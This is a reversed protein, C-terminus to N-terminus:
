RASVSSRDSPAALHPYVPHDLDVTYRQRRFIDRGAKSVVFDFFDRALRPNASFSLLGLPVRVIINEAPDLTVVDSENEYWAAVADWNIAADISGIEIAAGLEPATPAHLVLNREVRERLGHRELLEVSTKGVATVREVGMGVRVGPRALDQLTRINKPNGEAVMIVPVFYCIAEEEQVFGREAAQDMYYQEGPLYLDSPRSRHTIALQALLCASGAYLTKVKVGTEQEYAARAAEMPERLGAGSFILLSDSREASRGAFEELPQIAAAPDGTGGKAAVQRDLAAFWQAKTWGRAGPSGVFWVERGEFRFGLHNDILLASRGIALRDGAERGAPTSLDFLRARVQGPHRKTAEGLWEEVWLPEGELPHFADIRVASATAEGWTRSAMSTPVEVAPEEHDRGCGASLGLVALLSLARLLAAARRIAGADDPRRDSIEIRTKM